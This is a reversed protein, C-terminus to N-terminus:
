RAAPFKLVFLAGVNNTADLQVNGGHQRMVHKIVSLGLGTGNKGKTTFFTDFVKNRLEKPIGPGNDGVSVFVTGNSAWTKLRIERKASTAQMAQCANTVLNLVAQRMMVLDGKVAPLANSYDKTVEVRHERLQPGAVAFCSDIVENVNLQAFEDRDDRMFNMTRRVMDNCHQVQQQMTGLRQPLDGREPDMLLLELHSSLVTLPSGLDHMMGSVVRGITEFRNAELALFELARRDREERHKELGARVMDLMADNDFPKEMYTFAGYEVAKVATELQGYGTLIIVQVDPHSAKAQRLLDVGTQRPMRVDTIVLEIPERELIELASPVDCVIHVNYDEKLLMRLAQRPGNEDDVVLINPKDIGALPHELPLTTPEEPRSLTQTAM